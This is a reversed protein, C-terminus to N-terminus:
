FPIRYGVYRLLVSLWVLAYAIPAKGGDAIATVEDAADYLKGITLAKPTEYVNYLEDASINWYDDEELEVVDCGGRELHDFLENAAHRLTAIKIKM